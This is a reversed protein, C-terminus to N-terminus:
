LMLSNKDGFHLSLSSLILPHLLTLITYVFYMNVGALIKNEKLRYDRTTLTWM